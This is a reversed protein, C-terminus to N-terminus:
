STEREKRPPVIGPNLYAGGTDWPQAYKKMDTVKYDVVGTVPNFGKVEIDNIFLSLQQAGNEAWHVVHNVQAQVYYPGEIGLKDAEFVSINQVFPINNENAMSKEQRKRVM